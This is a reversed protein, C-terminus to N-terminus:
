KLAELAVNRINLCSGACGAIGLLPIIHMVTNIIFLRKEVKTQRKGSCIAMIYTVVAGVWLLFVFPISAFSTFIIGLGYSDDVGSPYVMWKFVSWLVPLYSIGFLVISTIHLAVAKEGNKNM